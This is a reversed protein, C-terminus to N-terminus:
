MDTFSSIWTPSHVRFDTGYVAILAEFGSAYTKSLDSVSLIVSMPERPM